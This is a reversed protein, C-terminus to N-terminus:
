VGSESCLVPCDPGVNGTAGGSNALVERVAQPNSVLSLTLAITSPSAQLPSTTKGLSSTSFIIQASAKKGKEFHLLNGKLYIKGSPLSWPLAAASICLRQM